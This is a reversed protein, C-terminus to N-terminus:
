RFEAQRAVIRRIIETSSIGKTYPVTRFIGLHFAAEYQDLITAQNFDDGHVVFDIQHEAIWEESVRLPPAVIVEDVYRCASIVAVREELMLIPIRKYSEVTDDALVGIILVDGFAKAQRFFEVHGSHFLDGVIDAYVRVPRAEDAFSMRAFFCLILIKKMM